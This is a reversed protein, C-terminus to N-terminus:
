RPSYLVVVTKAIQDHWTQRFPNWLPRLENIVIPAILFFSAFFIAAFAVARVFAVAASVQSGDDNVVVTRTAMKGITSGRWAHMVTSYAVTTLLFVVAPGMLDGVDLSARNNLNDSVAAGTFPAIVISVVLYDLFASVFRRIAPAYALTAPPPVDYYQVRRTWWM